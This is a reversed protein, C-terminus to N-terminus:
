TAYMMNNLVTTNNFFSFHSFFTRNIRNREELLRSLLFPGQLTRPFIDIHIFFACRVCVLFLSHVVSVLVVAAGCINIQHHAHM